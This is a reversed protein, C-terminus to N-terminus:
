QWPALQRAVYKGIIDYELNVLTGTTIQCFDTHDWTYPIITVMFTDNTPQILTLSVGNVAISGKDVLLHKDKSDYNFTFMWSGDRDEVQTCTGVGDVHGQVMHGDLRGDYRMARELNLLSGVKKQSLNSRDLTEKVAVVKHWDTGTEVVTLCIGSHSLSQDVKLESSIPSKVTFIHNTGSIEIDHIEGLTEVIGTFM